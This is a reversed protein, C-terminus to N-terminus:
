AAMRMNLTGASSRPAIARAKAKATFGSSVMTITVAEDTGAESKGAGVSWETRLAEQEVSEGSRYREFPVVNSADGSSETTEKRKTEWVLVPKM